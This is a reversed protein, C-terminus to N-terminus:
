ATAETALAHLSEFVRDKISHLRAGPLLQQVRSARVPFLKADHDVAEVVGNYAEWASGDGVHGRGEFWLARLRSRKEEYRAVTLDARSGTADWDVLTRPDVQVVDMVRRNWEADSLKRTQLAEYRQVTQITREVIGALVNEFAVNLRATADGRHVVQAQTRYSGAEVMALTNACVVRVDTETVSANSRGTHNTRVLIFKAIQDKLVDRVEDPFSALNVQALVWADAGDRLVGGTELRIANSDILPELMRFADVNQVVSYDAGVVGLEANRDTRVTVAGTVCPVFFESFVGGIALPDVGPRMRYVLQKEVPYLLNGAALADAFPTGAPLAVGEKHWATLHTGIEFFDARGNTFSLEHSMTGPGKTPTHQLHMGFSQLM